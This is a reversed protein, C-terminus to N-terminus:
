IAISNHNIELFSGYRGDKVEKGDLLFCNGKYIKTIKAIIMIIKVSHEIRPM